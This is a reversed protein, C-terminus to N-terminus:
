AITEALHVPGGSATQFTVRDNAADVTGPSGVLSDGSDAAITVAEANASTKLITVPMGAPVASMAPFTVTLAATNPVKALLGAGSGFRLGGGRLESQRKRAIARAGDQADGRDFM